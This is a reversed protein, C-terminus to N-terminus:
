KGGKIYDMTDQIVIKGGKDAPKMTIMDNNVLSKIANREAKPLNFRKYNPAMNLENLLECQTLHRYSDFNKISVEQNELGSSQNM